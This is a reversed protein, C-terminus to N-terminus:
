RDVEDEGIKWESLKVADDRTVLLLLLKSCCEVLAIYKRGYLFKSDLIKIVRNGDMPRIKVFGGRKCFQVIGYGCFCLISLFVLVTCVSAAFSGSGCQVDALLLCVDPNGMVGCPIFYM